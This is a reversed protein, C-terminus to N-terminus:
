AKSNKLEKIENKLSDVTSELEHIKDTLKDIAALAVVGLKDYAVSKNGQDESVLEPFLTEISQATVGINSRKDADDKWSFRMKKISKLSDLDVDIGSIFEKLKEDSTQYLNFDKWYINSSEDSYSKYLKGATEDDKVNTGVLYYTSKTSSKNISIKEAVDTKKLFSYALGGNKDINLQVIYAGGYELKTSSEAPKFIPEVLSAVTLGSSDSNFADTDFKLTLVNGNTNFLGGNFPIYTNNKSFFYLSSNEAKSSPTRDRQYIDWTDGNQYFMLPGSMSTDKALEDDAVNDKIEKKIIKKVLDSGDPIVGTSSDAYETNTSFICDIATKPYLEKANYDLLTHPIITSM